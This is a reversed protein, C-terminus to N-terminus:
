NDSYEAKILSMIVATGESTISYRRGSRSFYVEIEPKKAFERFARAVNTNPLDRDGERTLITAIQAATVQGLQNVRAYELAWLIRSVWVSGNLPLNQPLRPLLKNQPIVDLILQESSNELIVAGQQKPSDELTINASWSNSRSLTEQVWPQMLFKDSLLRDELARSTKLYAEFTEVANAAVIDGLSTGSDTGANEARRIFEQALDPNYWRTILAMATRYVKQLSLRAIHAYGMSSISMRVALMDSKEQKISTLL